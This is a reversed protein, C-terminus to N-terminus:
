HVGRGLDEPLNVTWHILVGTFCLRCRPRGCLDLALPEYLKFHASPGAQRYEVLRVTFELRLVSGQIGQM